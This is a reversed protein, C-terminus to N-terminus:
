SLIYDEEIDPGTDPRIDEEMLDEPMPAGGQLEYEEVEKIDEPARPVGGMQYDPEPIDEIEVIDEPPRAVGGTVWLDEEVEADKGALVWQDEEVVDLPAVGASVWRDAKADQIVDGAPQSDTEDCAAAGLVAIGLASKALMSIFRRREIDADALGPYVPKGKKEAKRRKM